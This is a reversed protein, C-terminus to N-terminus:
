DEFSFERSIDGVPRAPLEFDIPPGESLARVFDAGTKGAFDIVPPSVATIVVAPEGHVTVTQPGESQARRVVESFKAKADQLSWIRPHQNM